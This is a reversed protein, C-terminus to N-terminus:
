ETGCGGSSCGGGKNSPCGSCGGGEPQLHNPNSFVFGLVSDGEASKGEKLDAETGNLLELCSGDVVFKVGEGIDFEVDKGNVIQLDYKFRGRGSADKGFVLSLRVAEKGQEKVSKVLFDKAEQTLTVPTEM